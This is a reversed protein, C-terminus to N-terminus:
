SLEETEPVSPAKRIALRTTWLYLGAAIAVILLLVIGRVIPKQYFKQPQEENM